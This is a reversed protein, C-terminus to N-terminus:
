GKESRIPAFSRRHVPSPGFQDIARCHAQTGYGKHSAFGYEPYRADLDCLFADRAVKALVSAGAISLSRMDGKMLSTQPISLDPIFLYDLLLHDPQFTLAELARWAALRTAPLIGFTDIEEPSAFGVGWDWAVEQLRYFWSTRQSVTLQKSDKLGKLDLTMNGNPRIVFAAAAVPGALAGRGAEDIGVIHLAGAEWFSEELDANPSNPIL